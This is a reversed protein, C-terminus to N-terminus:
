TSVKTVNMKVGEDEDISGFSSNSDDDNLLAAQEQCYVKASGMGGKSDARKMLSPVNNISPGKNISSSKTISSKAVSSSGKNFSSRGSINIDEASPGGDVLIPKPPNM